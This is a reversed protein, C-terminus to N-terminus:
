LSVSQSSGGVRTVGSEAESDDVLSAAEFDLLFFFTLTKSGVCDLDQDLFGLAM